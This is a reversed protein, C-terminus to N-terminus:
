AAHRVPPMGATEDIGRHDDFEFLDGLVCQRRLDCHGGDCECLQGTTGVRGGVWGLACTALIADLSGLCGELRDREVCGCSACVSPDVGRDDAGSAIRSTASRDVEQDRGRGDGGFEGWVRPVWGVEGPKLGQEVDDCHRRESRGARKSTARNLQAPKAILHKGLYGPPKPESRMVGSM